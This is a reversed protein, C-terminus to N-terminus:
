RPLSPGDEGPDPLLRNLTRTQDSPQVDVAVALAIAGPVPALLAGHVDILEVRVTVPALLQLAVVEDEALEALVERDVPEAVVLHADAVPVADAGGQELDGLWPHRAVPDTDPHVLRPHGRQEGTVTAGAEVEPDELFTRYLGAVVDDLDRGPSPPHRDRGDVCQQVEVTAGIGLQKLSRQPDGREARAPLGREARQELLLAAASWAAPVRAQRETPGGGAHGPKRVRRTTAFRESVAVTSDSSSSASSPAGSGRASGPCNTM